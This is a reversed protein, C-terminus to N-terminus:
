AALVVMDAPDFSITVDQGIAPPLRQARNFMDFLMPQDGCTAGIRLIAGLFQVSTVRVNLRNADPQPEGLAIAEPRISLM